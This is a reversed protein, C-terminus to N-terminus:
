SLSGAHGFALGGRLPIWNTKGVTILCFTQQSLPRNM